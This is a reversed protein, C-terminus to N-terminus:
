RCERSRHAACDALAARSLATCLDSGQCLPNNCQHGLLRVQDLAGMGYALSHLGPARHGRSGCTLAAREKRLVAQADVASRRAVQRVSQQSM